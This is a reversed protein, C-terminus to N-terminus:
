MTQIKTDCLHLRSPRLWARPAAEREVECHMMTTVTALPVQNSDGGDDDDSDNCDCDLTGNVGDADSTAAMSMAPWRIQSNCRRYKDMLSVDMKAMMVTLMKSIVTVVMARLWKPEPTLESAKRKATRPSELFSREIPTGGSLLQVRWSKRQQVITYM